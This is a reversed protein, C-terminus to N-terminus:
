LVRTRPNSLEANFLVKQEQGPGQNLKWSGCLPECGGPVRASPLGIGEELKKMSYVCMICLYESLCVYVCWYIFRYFGLQMSFLYNYIEM